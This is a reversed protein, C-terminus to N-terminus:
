TNAPAEKPGSRAWTGIPNLPRMSTSAANSMTAAASIATLLRRVASAPDARYPVLRSWLIGPRRAGAIVVAKIVAPWPLSRAAIELSILVPAQLLYAAYAGRSWRTLATARHTFWRQALALLWVSGAVV